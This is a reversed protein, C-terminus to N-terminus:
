QDLVVEGLLLRTVESRPTHLLENVTGTEVIRGQDLVAVHDCLARVVAMEHTILFMTVGLQRQINKLLQLIQKTTLPDLASTLEDLLLLQPQLALARAIAVRQRQGGSLQSPYAHEKGVLGVVELLEQVRMRTDYETYHAMQLPFAINEVVTKQMFLHYGQFVVGISSLFRRRQDGQLTALDIGNIRIHGGDLNELGIISRLLTSKGAGSLGIVGFIEGTAVHFSVENLATFHGEKLGKFKKVVAEVQLM